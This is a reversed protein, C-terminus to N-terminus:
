RGIADKAKDMMAAFPGALALMTPNGAASPHPHTPALHEARRLRAGMKQREDTSCESILAPFEEREEHTAHDDVAQEFEALTADFEPSSVDMGELKRLVESAEKEEANRADAERAGAAKKAAPRVVLEEGAEHVALLARLADFAEKKNDGQAASVRSFLERIRTHQELLLAVVDGEPLPTSTGMDTPSNM